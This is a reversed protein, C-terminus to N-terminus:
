DPKTQEEVQAAKTYRRCKCASNEDLLRSRTDEVALAYRIALHSINMAGINAQWLRAAVSVLRRAPLETKTM